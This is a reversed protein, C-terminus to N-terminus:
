YWIHIQNSPLKFPNQTFISIRAATKPQIDLCCNLKDNNKYLQYQRFNPNSSKGPGCHFLSTLYLNWKLGMDYTKLTCITIKKYTKNNFLLNSHSIVQFLTYLHIHIQIHIQTEFILRFLNENSFHSDDFLCYFHITAVKVM